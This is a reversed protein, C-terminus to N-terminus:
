GRGQGPRGPGVQPFGRRRCRGEGGAAHDRGRRQDGRRGHRDQARGAHCRAAHGQTSGARHPVGAPDDQARRHYRAQAGQRGLGAQAAVGHGCAHQHRPSRRQVAPHFTPAGGCNKEGRGAARLRGPQGTEFAICGAQRPLAVVNGLYLSRCQNGARGIRADTREGGCHWRGLRDPHRHRQQRQGDADHAAPRPRHDGFWPDHPYGPSRGDLSLHGRGEAAGAPAPGAQRRRGPRPYAGSGAGQGHQGDSFRGGRERPRCTRRRLDLAYVGVEGDFSSVLRDLEQQLGSASAHAPDAAVSTSCFLLFVLATLISRALFRAPGPRLPMPVAIGSM